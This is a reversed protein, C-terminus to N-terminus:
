KPNQPLLQHLVAWRFVELGENIADTKIEFVKEGWLVSLRCGNWKIGVSDRRLGGLLCIEDLAMSLSYQEQLHPGCSAMRVDPWPLHAGLVSRLAQAPPIFGGRQAPPIYGGRVKARGRPVPPASLKFLPAIRTETYRDIWKWAAEIEHAERPSSAARMAAPRGVREDLRLRLTKALSPALHPKLAAYEAVTEWDVADSEGDRRLWVPIARYDYDDALEGSGQHWTGRSTKTPMGNSGVGQLQDIHDSYTVGVPVALPVHGLRKDLRDFRLDETRSEPEKKQKRPQDKTLIRPETRDHRHTALGMRLGERETATKVYGIPNQGRGTHRRWAGQRLIEQAAPLYCAPLKLVESVLHLWEADHVERPTKSLRDFLVAAKDPSM